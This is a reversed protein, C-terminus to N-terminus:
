RFMYYLTLVIATGATTVILLLIDKRNLRLIKYSTRTKYARFARMEMALAMDKARVITGGFVPLFLYTYVRIRKGMPVKKLEIGRLQLATLTNRIEEGFIPIFRLAVSFMFALEYPMRIQVLGQVLRRSDEAALFVASLMLIIMRCLFAGGSLLGGSTVLAVRGVQLYVTGYGNFISQLLAIVFFLELLQRFRRRWAALRDRCTCLVFILMVVLLPLLYEVQRFLLAAASVCLAFLMRVRPDVRQKTSEALEACGIM